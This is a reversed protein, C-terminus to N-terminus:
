AEKPEEHVMQGDKVIHTQQVEEQVVSAVMSTAIATVLIACVIGPPIEYYHAIILKIGIFVLVAGVGYKLLTFLKVLEDIIFFCARMGLMAFVASTYALFLDPVQAVIASVSDVAFLVDSIELCVVVLALMTLRWEFQTEGNGCKIAKARIAAFDVTGYNKEEENEGKGAEAAAMLSDTERPSAKIADDIMASGASNVPVRVFFAGDKDYVSVFPLKQTLWQVLPQQSPDEDDEDSTVTKFGTYMLFVGFVLHMFFMTHMLYEGIFIFALRFVVAGCIGLYLPRHKLHDPCGYASFILHFVFLNDFSLMWELMYGSMWMFAKDQGMQKWIGCAFGCACAIWFLTYGMARGLSLAKPDRNLVLNDFAILVMFITSFAVWAPWDEWRFLTYAHDKAFAWKWTLQMGEEFTNVMGFTMNQQGVTVVRTVLAPTM